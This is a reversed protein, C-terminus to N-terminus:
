SCLVASTPNWSTSGLRTFSNCRTRCLPRHTQPAKPFSMLLVQGCNACRFLTMAVTRPPFRLFGSECTQVCNETRREAGAGMISLPIQHRPYRISHYPYYRVFKHVAAYASFNFVMYSPEANSSYGYLNSFLTGRSCYSCPMQRQGTQSM